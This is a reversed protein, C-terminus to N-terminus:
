ATAKSAEQQETSPKSIQEASRPEVADAEGHKDYGVDGSAQGDLGREGDVGPQDLGDPCGARVLPGIV